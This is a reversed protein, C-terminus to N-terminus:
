CGDVHKKCRYSSLSNRHFKTNPTCISLMIPLIVNESLPERPYSVMYHELHIYYKPPVQQRWRNHWTGFSILRLGWIGNSLYKAEYAFQPELLNFPLGHLHLCCTGRFSRYGAIFTCPKVSRFVEIQLTAAFWINYWNLKPQDLALSIDVKSVHRAYVYNSKEFRSMTCIIWVFNLDRDFRYCKNPFKKWHSTCRTYPFIRTDKSGARHSISLGTNSRPHPM